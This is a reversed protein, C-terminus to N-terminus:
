GGLWCGGVDEGWMVMGMGCSGGWDGLGFGLDLDLDLDLGLGVM